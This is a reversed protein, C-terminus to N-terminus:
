PDVRAGDPAACAGDPPITEGKNADGGGTVRSEPADPEM